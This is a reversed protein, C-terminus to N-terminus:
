NTAVVHVVSSYEFYVVRDSYTWTTIPPEGIADSAELPEGLENRVKDMTMGRRPFDVVRVPLTDGEQIEIVDGTIETETRHDYVHIVPEAETEDTVIEQELEVEEVAQKHQMEVEVASIEDAETTTELVPMEEIGPVAELEPMEELEPVSELEATDEATTSIDVIEPEFTESRESMAPRDAMAHTSAILLLSSALLIHNQTILKNM